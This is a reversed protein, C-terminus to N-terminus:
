HDHSGEGETKNGAERERCPPMNGDRTYRALLLMVARQLREKSDPTLVHTVKVVLKTAARKAVKAM